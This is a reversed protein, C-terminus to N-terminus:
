INSYNMLQHVKEIKLFLFHSAQFVVTFRTTFCVGTRMGTNDMLVGDPKQKGVIYLCENTTSLLGVGV